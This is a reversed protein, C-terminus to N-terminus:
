SKHFLIVEITKYKKQHGLLLLLTLFEESTDSEEEEIEENQEEDKIEKEEKPLYYKEMEINKTGKKVKRGYEDIDTSSIFNKDKFMANFRDDDLKVKRVTKPVPKFKPDTSIKEFRKDKKM